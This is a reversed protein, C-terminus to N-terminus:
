KGHDMEKGDKDYTVSTNVTSVMDGLPVVEVVSNEVKGIKDLFQLM